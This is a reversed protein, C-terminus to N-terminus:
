EIIRWVNRSRVRRAIVIIPAVASVLIAAVIAAISALSAQPFVIRRLILEGSVNSLAVDGMVNVYGVAAGLLISFAVIGINEVVLMQFVQKSSFGRIAMLTIEKQRERLTTSVVLAVGVSSVLTSFVIGLEQVQKPGQLFINERAAELLGRVTYIVEVNESMGTVETKFGEVDAAPELRVLIRSRLVDLEPTFRDLFEESVFSPLPQYQGGEPLGPGLLDVVALTSFLNFRIKFTVNDGLGLGTVDALGKDLIIREDSETLMQLSAASGGAFWKEEFYATNGWSEPDIARPVIAMFPTEVYFWREVATSVVGDLAEIGEALEHAEEHDFLWVAADAGVNWRITRVRRDSLTALGGIVSVSYGFILAILFAIAATRRQTRRASLMSIKSIDGILRGALSGVAEQIRFSGHIFLKTFGWFFLIPGLFALIFDSGWWTNYLVSVIMGGGVPRFSEVSVGFLLMLIKYLGLILAIAPELRSPLTEEEVSRHEMLADIMSLHSVRWSPLLVSLLSIITSFALVSLTTTVSFLQLQGFPNSGIGVLPILFASSVIGIVGSLLGILVAEVLLIMFIQRPTFGKTLLLGVERRRSGLMVDSVTVGMYWATFFVPLAILVFRAKFSDSISKVGELVDQLFNQWSHLEYRQVKNDIQESVLQIREISKAIDWPNVIGGRDLDVVVEFTIVKAPLRGENYATAFISFLSERSMFLLDHPPKRLDQGGGLLIARVFDPTEGTIRVYSRLDVDVHGAVSLNAYYTRYGPPSAPNFTFLHLTANRGVELEPAHISDGDIYIKALDIGEFGPGFITRWLASDEELAIITFEVTNNPNMFDIYNILASWRIVQETEVVGDMSRVDAELDSINMAFLERLEDALIIDVPVLGMAEELMEFGVEEAGLMTGSFLTTAIAIGLFLAVFGRWGRVVRKLAYGFM